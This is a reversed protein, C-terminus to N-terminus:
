PSVEVLTGFDDTVALKFASGNVWPGHIMTYGPYTSSPWWQHSQSTGVLTKKM